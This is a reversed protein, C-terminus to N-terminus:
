GVVLSGTGAAVTGGNLTVVVYVTYTGAPIFTIGLTLTDTYGVNFLNSVFKTEGISASQGDNLTAVVKYQCDVCPGAISLASPDVAALIATAISSAGASQANVSQVSYSCVIVCTEGVTTTIKANYDNVGVWPLPVLIIAVVVAVLVLAIAARGHLAM